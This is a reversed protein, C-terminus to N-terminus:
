QAASDESRVVAPGYLVGFDCLVNINVDVDFVSTFPNVCIDFGWVGVVVSSARLFIAQHTSSLNETTIVPYGAVKNDELLYRPYTAVKVTTSWKNWTAGDILWANTGDEVVNAQKLAAPMSVLKAWTATAGFTVGQYNLKSLDSNSVSNETMGLLGTIPSGTGTLFYNDLKAGISRMIERRIAHEADINSQALLQKSIRTEIGVRKASLSLTSFTGDGADATLAATETQEAPAFDTAMRPWSVQGVLGDLVTAGAAILASYPRLATALDKRVTTQVLNGGVNATGVVLDRTLIESPVMLGLAPQGIERSIGESVECEYTRKDMFGPGAVLYDRLSYSREGLSVAASSQYPGVSFPNRRESLGSLPLTVINTQLIENKTM